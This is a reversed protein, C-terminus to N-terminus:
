IEGKFLKIALNSLPNWMEEVCRRYADEPQGVPDAVDRYRTEGTEDFDALLYTKGKAASFQRLVTKRHEETMVVILSADKVMERSLRRSIHGSIDIGRGQMVARAQPSASMGEAASVGASVVDVAARGGLMSRLIGAAMPSRCSNGSCVFLVTRRKDREQKEGPDAAGMTAGQSILFEHIESVTVAGERVIDATDQRLRVVTSGARYRTPGADIVMSIKGDLDRVVDEASVPDRTGSLNASPAVIPVSCAGILTRAVEHDPCRFGIAGLKACIGALPEAFCPKQEFRERDIPLIITLPGPWFRDILARAREDVVVPYDELVAPSAVHATFPKEADRGKIAYARALTNASAANIGLGYVTETPFAVFGGAKLIAAAEHIIVPHPKLLPYVQVVQTRL